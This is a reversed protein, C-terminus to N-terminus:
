KEFRAQTTKQLILEKSGKRFRLTYGVPSKYEWWRKEKFVVDKLKDPSIGYHDCFKGRFEQNSMEGANFIEEVRCKVLHIKTVHGKKDGVLSRDFYGRGYRLVTQNLHLDIRRQQREIYPKGSFFMKNYYRLAKKMSMGLYWPGIKIPPKEKQYKEWTAQPLNDSPIFIKVVLGNNAVRDIKVNKYTKGDLTTINEAQVTFGLCLALFVCKIKSHFIM